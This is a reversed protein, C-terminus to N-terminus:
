LGLREKAAKREAHFDKVWGMLIETEINRAEILAPTDDSAPIPNYNNGIDSHHAGGEIPVYILTPSLTKNVSMSSWPDFSGSSFIIRSASTAMRAIDMQGWSRPMALGDIRLNSGYNYRCGLLRDTENFPHSSPPYFDTVNNSEIPHIETTCSEIGWGDQCGSNPVNWETACRGPSPASLDVETDDDTNGDCQTSWSINLCQGPLLPSLMAQYARLGDGANLMRSCAWNTLSKNINSLPYSGLEAATGTWDLVLSAVEEAHCPLTAPTCTNFAATVAEPSLSSTQWYGDRFLNVCEDGGATRFADTVVKNWSYQDCLGPFGFIPASAALAMDVTFPYRIRFWTSMEGSLSGGIAIVPSDWASLNQRLSIVLANDDELVQAETLTGVHAADPIWGSLDGTNDDTSPYTLGFGRHEGLVVLASLNKALTDIVWGYEGYYYPAPGAEVCPVFIIPAPPGAWHRDDYLYRQQFTDTNGNADSPAFYNFHDKPQTFWKTVYKAPFPEPPSPGFPPCCPVVDSDNNRPISSSKGPLRNSNSFRKHIVKEAEACILAILLVSVNTKM